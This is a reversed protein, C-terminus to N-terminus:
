ILVGDLARHFCQQQPSVKVRIYSSTAFSLHSTIFSLYPERCREFM